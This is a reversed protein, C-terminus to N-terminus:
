PARFRDSGYEHNLCVDLAAAHVRLVAESIENVDTQLQEWAQPSKAARANPTLVSRILEAQRLAAKVVPVQIHRYEVGYKACQAISRALVLVEVGYDADTEIEVHKLLEAVQRKSLGSQDVVDQVSLSVQTGRERVSPAPITSSTETDTPVTPASQSSTPQEFGRDLQDLQESIVRLPLFHDRQMRLTYRLREVDRESYKRYGSPTRAPDVIGATELFRIKSVSVETEPFEAQLIKVVIGIGYPPRHSTV